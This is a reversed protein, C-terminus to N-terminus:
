RGFCCTAIKSRRHTASSKVMQLAIKCITFLVGRHVVKIVIGHGSGKDKASGDWCVKVMKINWKRKTVLKGDERGGRNACTDAIKNQESFSVCGKKRSARLKMGVKWTKCNHRVGTNSKGNVWHAVTLSDGPIGLTPIDGGVKVEWVEPPLKRPEKWARGKANKKNKKKLQAVPLKVKELFKKQFREEKNWTRRSGEKQGGM